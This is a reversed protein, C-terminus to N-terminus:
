ENPRVFWLEGLSLGVNLKVFREQILDPRSSGRSGYLVTLDFTNGQSMPFSFGGAASYQNIGTGDVKYQTQEYSFGARWIIQQWSTAGIEQKPKYQFGVSLKSANRLDGSNVDNFAYNSWNQTAFDLSISYKQDLSFSLGAMLRIPVKMKVNGEEITDTRTTTTSTLITDTNLQGLYEAAVGIRMNSILDSHFLTSIDPSVLGFNSGLGHPHYTRTYNSNSADSSIFESTAVYEISGFYYNLTAGLSLDFPLRYSTGVYAKSLGGDGKYIVQYSGNVQTLATVNESVNYSVSSYPVIGLSVTAGNSDSVPFALTLGAFQAKGNFGSTGNQSLFSGSYSMDVNFRTRNIQNWTAPNVIDYFANNSLSVGLGGIGAGYASTSYNVDGIGIRSYGSGTQSLINIQLIFFVALFLKILKM